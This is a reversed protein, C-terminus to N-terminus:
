GEREAMVSEYARRLADRWNPADHGTDDLGVNVRYLPSGEGVVFSRPWFGVPKSASVLAELMAEVGPRDDAPVDDLDGPRLGDAEAGVVRMGEYGLLSLIATGLWEGRVHGCRVDDAIDEDWWSRITERARAEVTQQESM